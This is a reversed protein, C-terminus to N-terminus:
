LNEMQNVTWAHKTAKRQASSLLTSSNEPVGSFNWKLVTNQNHITTTILSKWQSQLEGARAEIKLTVLVIQLVSAPRTGYLQLVSSSSKPIWREHIEHLRKVRSDGFPLSYCLVEWLERGDLPENWSDYLGVNAMIRLNGSWRIVPCSRQPTKLFALSTLHFVRSVHTHKKVQLIALESETNATDPKKSWLFDYSEM